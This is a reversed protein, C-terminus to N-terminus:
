LLSALIKESNNKVDNFYDRIIIERQTKKEDNNNILNSVTEVLQDSNYVSYSGDIIAKSYDLYEFSSDSQCYIIPKGTVFYEPVIGSLDTILFDSKWFTKSYEKSEDLELNKELMIYRKFDEVEKSSLEGTKIFNDFMLPHPRFIFKINQNEKAINLITNKYNFFNSGGIYKDTSWRPTWLVTKEFEKDKYDTKSDLIEELGIAGYPLVRQIGKSVGLKFRDSYFEQEGKDFCYYIYVNEYYDKNLTVDQENLSFNAGYLINCILAYKSIIKSSYEKPMFSNYPRSQFIYDPKLQKLDYWGKSTLANIPQYGHKVFYEYTDNRKDDLTNQNGINLPVCVITPNFRSNRLMKKYVPEIKNWGPIYQIVFIVNIVEDNSIRKKVKNINKSIFNLSYLYRINDITVKIKKCTFYIIKNKKIIDKIM